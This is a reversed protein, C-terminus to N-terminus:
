KRDAGTRIWRLDAKRSLYTFVGEQRQFALRQDCKAAPPLERPLIAKKRRMLVAGHLEIGDAGDDGAANGAEAQGHGLMQDGM